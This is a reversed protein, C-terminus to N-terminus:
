RLAFCCRGAPLVFSSSLREKNRQVATPGPAVRRSPAPSWLLSPLSQCCPLMTNSMAVSYSKRNKNKKLPPACSTHAQVPLNRVLHLCSQVPLDLAPKTGAQHPGPVPRPGPAPRTRTAPGRAQSSNSATTQCTASYPSLLCAM